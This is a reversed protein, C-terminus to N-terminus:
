KGNRMGEALRSMAKFGSPERLSTVILSHCSDDDLSWANKECQSRLSLVDDAPMSYMERMFRGGDYELFKFVHGEWWNGRGGYTRWMYANKAAKRARRHERRSMPLWGNHYGGVVTAGGSGCKPCDYSMVEESMKIHAVRM